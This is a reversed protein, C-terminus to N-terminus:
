RLRLTQSTYFQPLHNSCSWLVIFRDRLAPRALEQLLLSEPPCDPDTTLCTWPEFLQLLRVDPRALATALLFARRVQLPLSGLPQESWEELLASVWIPRPSPWSKTGLTCLLWESTHSKPSLHPAHHSLCPEGALVTAIRRRTAPSRFPASGDLLVRGARPAYVGAITLAAEDALQPSTAVLAVVGPQARDHLRCGSNLQLHEFLLQPEPM